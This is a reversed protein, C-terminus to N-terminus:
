LVFPYILGQTALPLINLLSAESKTGAEPREGDFANQRTM